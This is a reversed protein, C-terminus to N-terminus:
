TIVSKEKKVRFTRQRIDALSVEHEYGCQLCKEYHRNSDEDIFIDGRCRPCKKLNWM